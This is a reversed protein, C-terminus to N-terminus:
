RTMRTCICGSSNCQREKGEYHLKDPHGCARCAYETGAVEPATEEQEPQEIEPSVARGDEGKKKGKPWGM